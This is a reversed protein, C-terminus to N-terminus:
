FSYKGSLAVNGSRSSGGSGFDSMNGVDEYELRVGFPKSLQFGVGLGLLVNLDDNNGGSRPRNVGVKGLLSFREDLAITLTGSLALSSADSANDRGLDIYGLEAGWYPSFQYGGYVKWSSDSGSDPKGVGAGVYMQAVAPGAALASALVALVLYKKM